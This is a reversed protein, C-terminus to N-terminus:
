PALTLSFYADQDVGLKFAAGVVVGTAARRVYDHMNMFVLRSVGANNPRFAPWGAPEFPPPQTYDFLLEGAHDAGAETVVFYGPGTVRGVAPAPQYNYGFVIGDATRALRKQFRSFLPLSNRGEFYVTTGSPTSAPVADELWLSGGGAILAFLKRLMKGRVSLVEDVRRHASLDDLYAAIDAAPSSHEVM